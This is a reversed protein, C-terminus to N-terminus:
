WRQDFSVEYAELVRQRDLDLVADILAHSGAIYTWADDIENGVFWARDSPWWMQPGLASVGDISPAPQGLADVASLPGSRLVMERVGWWPIEACSAFFLQAMALACDSDEQLRRPAMEMEVTTMGGNSSLLIGSAGSDSIGGFGKWLAYWSFQPTTTAATM